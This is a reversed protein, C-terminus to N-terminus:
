KYLAGAFFDGSALIVDPRQPCWGVVTGMSAHGQYTTFVVAKRASRWMRALLVDPPVYESAISAVAIIYDAPVIRSSVRYKHNPNPDSEKARRIAVPNLDIGTYKITAPFRGVLDGYGCGVDLVSADGLDDPLLAMVADFQEAQHEAHHYFLQRARDHQEQTFTM